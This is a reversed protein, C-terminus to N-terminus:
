KEFVMAKTIIYPGRRLDKYPFPNSHVGVGAAGWLPRLKQKQNATAGRNEYLREGGGELRYRFTHEAFAPLPDSHGEGRRRACGLLANSAASDGFLASSKEKSLTEFLLSKQIKDKFNFRFGIRNSVGRHEFRRCPTM